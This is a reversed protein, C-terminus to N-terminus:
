EVYTLHPLNRHLGDHDLGYGVVWRDPVRFGVHDPRFDVERGSPKDLLVAFRLSAPREAELRRRIAALTHGGDLIDEVVLVHADHVALGPPLAMATPDGGGRISPVRMLGIEVPPPLRRVLDACFMFAGNLIALVSLRAGPPTGDRIEAAMEEVRRHIAAEDFLIETSLKM